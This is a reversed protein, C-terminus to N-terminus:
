GGYHVRRSGFRFQLLTITGVLVLMLVAEAAALGTRFNRFADEYLQYVLFTTVGAQGEIPGGRTLIDVLGFSDFLAYVVNTFLLFFTMPSLLPVVIRWFSQMGNAGDIEAAELVERPLNTLAALYFVVNYGLGKWVAAATVLGFALAPDDLWRPRLGFLSGLLQNVAGVEPNFLFLWLTGAVAPSLAYPFILLLRYIRGGRIPRSALWALGLGLGLGLVVVLAVFALTQGVVQRYVPSGLLDAFNSLGVFQRTGLVINSRYGSLQLTQVAPLYLFVALVILTPALFLWPLVRSRFAPAVETERAAPAAEPPATPLATM